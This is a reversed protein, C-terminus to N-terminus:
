DLGSANDDSENQQEPAVDIPILKFGILAQAPSMSKDSSTMDIKDGYRKPHWKALLKLRLEARNKLWMVHASDRHKGEVIEAETDIIELAQMAIMDAGRERAEHYRARFADDADLWDYFTEVSPMNPSQRLYDALTKGSSIHECVADAHDSLHHIKKGM